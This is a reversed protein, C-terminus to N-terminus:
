EKHKAKVKGKYGRKETEPSEAAPAAAVAGAEENSAKVTLHLKAVVDHHLKIEIEHAGSSKIPHELVIRHRDIEIGNLEAKLKTAIDTSTISGFAKGTSGTELILTMKLKNIKRSLDEAENLERGEREARKTKLMNVKKLTLPTVELAKGHPILFNRAYGAKVKVIDAEAGLNPVTTTLLVQTNAMFIERELSEKTFPASKITGFLPLTLCRALFKLPNILDPLRTTQM